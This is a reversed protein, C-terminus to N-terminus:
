NVKHPELKTLSQVISHFGLILGDFQLFGGATREKVAPLTIKDTDYFTIYNKFM